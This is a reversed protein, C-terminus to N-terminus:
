ANASPGISGNELLYMKHKRLRFREPYHTSIIVLKEKALSQLYKIFIAQSEQDLGHLPEDLILIDPNHILAQLLNVKQKMGNSLWGIMRSSVEAFDFIKLLEPIKRKLMEGDKERVRGLSVLFDVVNMYSPMVYQEPAYGIKSKMIVIKGEYRCLGMICRLLTTKGSGNEGVILNLQGSEFSTCVDKVAFGTKYRKSLNSITISIAPSTKM